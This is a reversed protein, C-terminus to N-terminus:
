LSRPSPAAPPEKDRLFAIAAEEDDFVHNPINTARARRQAQLVGVATHVLVAVRAFGGYISSVVTDVQAESPGGASIPADRADLLLGLKPRERMPVALVFREAFDAIAQPEPLPQALRRIRVIGPERTVITRDTRLIEEM